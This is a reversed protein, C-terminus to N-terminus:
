SQEQVPEEAPERQQERAKKHKKYDWSPIFGNKELKEYKKDIIQHIKEGKEKTFVGYEVYKDVVKKHQEVMKKYLKEMEKKQKDTLEVTQKPGSEEAFATPGGFGFSISCLIAATMAISFLRSMKM